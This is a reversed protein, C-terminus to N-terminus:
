PSNAPLPLGYRKNPIDLPMKDKPPFLSVWLTKKDPPGLLHLPTCSLQSTAWPLRLTPRPPAPVAQSQPCPIVQHGLDRFSTSNNLISISFSWLSIFLIQFPVVQLFLPHKITEFADLSFWPFSSQSQLESNLFVLKKRFDLYM